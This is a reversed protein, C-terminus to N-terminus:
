SNKLIIGIIINALDKCAMSTKKFKDYITMWTIIEISNQSTMHLKRVLETYLKKTEEGIDNIAVINRDITNAKNFQKFKEFVEILEDCSKLILKSFKITDSKIYRVNYMYIHLIIDEISNTIRNMKHILLFIDEREIPTIFDEGLRKRIEYAESNGKGRLQHISELAEHLRKSNYNTLLDDLIKAARYSYDNLKIFKEFYNYKGRRM